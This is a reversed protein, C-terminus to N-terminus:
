VEGLINSIMKLLQELIPISMSLIVAGSLLQIGKGMAANGSDNCIGVVLEGVIGIGCARLLINVFDGNLGGVIELQNFFEIVPKLYGISVIGAMACVTIVLIVSIDKSQKELAKGLIVAILAGAAAKMFTIM